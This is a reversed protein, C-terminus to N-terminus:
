RSAEPAAHARIFTERGHWGAYNTQITVLLAVEFSPSHELCAQFTHNTGAKISAMCEAYDASRMYAAPGLISSHNSDYTFEGVTTTTSDSAQTNQNSM